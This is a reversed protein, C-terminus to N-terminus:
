VNMYTHVDRYIIHLVATKYFNEILYTVYDLLRVCTINPGQWYFILKVFQMCVTSGRNDLNILVVSLESVPFQKFFLKKTKFRVIIYM